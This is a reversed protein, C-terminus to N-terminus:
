INLLYGSGFIGSDVGERMKHGRTQGVVILLNENLVQLSSANLLGYHKLDFM